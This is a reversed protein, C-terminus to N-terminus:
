RQGDRYPLEARVRYVAGDLGAVLEGGLLAAREKMGVLGHGAGRAATRAAPNTVLLALADPGYEIEVGVPSGGHRGANTLAEQVIRFAAQDVAPALPREDGRRLVHV